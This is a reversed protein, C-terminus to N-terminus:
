RGILSVLLWHLGPDSAVSRPTQDPVVSSTNFVPIEIFYPLILVLWVGLRNTISRDLMNLHSLGSPMFTNLRHLLIPYIGFLNHKYLLDSIFICTM